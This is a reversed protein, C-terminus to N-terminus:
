ELSQSSGSEKPAYSKSKQFKQKEKRESVFSKKSKMFKNDIVMTMSKRFKNISQKLMGTNM